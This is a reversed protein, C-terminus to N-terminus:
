IRSRVPLTFWVMFGGGEAPCANIRCGRRGAFEDHDRIIQKCILYETGTLVGEGQRQIRSLHPYFLQNLEEQSFNRRRDIFNFRVFDGEKYIQWELQGELPCTLAENVLNELLFRLQIGDGTVSVPEAEVKWTVNLASKRTVRKLHKHAAELLDAVKVGGRRFTVEELQRAACSSLITFIDKYYVILESITDMQRHEEEESLGGKLRDVIQKIRNPYYITEHKITSLCNDLVMNQVHLLHEERLIRRAEDQAVEIDRYKQAVLEIANYVLISVYGAVLELMLRDDEKSSHYAGKLGLVGLYRNEGAVEVSLPLCGIKKEENWEPELRGFTRCMEEKMDGVEEDTASFVFHLDSSGEAVVAIGLADLSVLENVEKVLVDVLESIFEGSDEKWTSPVALARRNIELVQELGFRYNLRHRWYFLYYGVLLALVLVVCLIIAITKNIASLKMRECYEELSADVSIQKYLATYAQNNYRYADLESLALYAVAAENRVDLLTYYDTEFRSAYWEVEASSGEGVLQLLPAVFSAYKLFHRNMCTLASDAYVVADAYRGGLNAEYVQNALRNAEMLLSDNMMSDVLHTNVVSEESAMSRQGCGTSFVAVMLLAVGIMRRVGKPLRFYFRSGEGLRSEVQFSCVRFIDNTKRYKEIIGRCNMLGFGSGKSKQLAEVDSATQLGIKGSDYVKEHLICAVDEESLGPGNDQVSIEVYDAEERAYIQVSGGSQTYKRANEMLTNMMFLTLAKDAKVWVDTPEVKFAQEKLDFNRRGKQLVEFLPNLAFNEINLNLSGQRTKIWLALIDNYENIRDILEGIYQYKEEKIEKQSLYNFSILKHVENVVRDIYPMIGTVLFLCAKKVLNQRKNEVLHQNHVYQEKELRRREDGLKIMALGNELTWSLYPVIVELLAKDERRFVSPMEVKWLAIPTGESDKLVIGKETPMREECEEGIPHISMDSAGVLAMLRNKMSAMIAEIVDELDEADSPVSATIRRSIELAEKLREVYLTNRIRWRHNLYMLLGILGVLGGMVLMLLLNLLNSEEELAQYRSELEKDQRTYDLIDLYINRNYDSQPKMGLASYTVSLQERFRAIWEPVTKIGEANIWDLEISHTAEPIYPKLRDLTDQCHYFKEHHLNVYSLADSLHKLAKEHHGLENYCSALTRYTGSIQYWDDYQKFLRLASQAFGIVLEEWPLDKQNIARMMGPREELLLEYNKKNILLEAMAQSANAEFYVYGQEHSLTLCDMLYDFEGVVVEEPTSAQYLGGSGKMYYYYLLQAMDGDLERNVDVENIAELSQPEQQLYFYYVSSTISFESCAYNFRRLIGADKMAEEDEGIRKMRRLASNRYDYFEKNMATRQCIKMMGVDAVLCELENTTEEYVEGLLSDAREFDMQIFACFALNNLAEAKVSPYGGGVEMARHALKESLRWDKYRVEYAQRNLSDAQCLTVAGKGEGCALFSVMMWCIGLWLLFRIGKKMGFM